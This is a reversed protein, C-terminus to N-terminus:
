PRGKGEIAFMQREQCEKAIFRHFISLDDVTEIVSFCSWYYCISGFCGRYPFSVLITGINVCTRLDDLYYM